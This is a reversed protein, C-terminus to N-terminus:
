TGIESGTLLFFGCCVGCVIPAEVDMDVGVGGANEADVGVACCEVGVTVVEGCVGLDGLFLATTFDLDIGAGRLFVDLATVVDVASAGDVDVAAGIAAEGFVGDSDM